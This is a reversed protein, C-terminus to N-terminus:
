LILEKRMNGRDTQSRKRHNRSLDMIIGVTSIWIKNIMMVKGIREIRADKKRRRKM